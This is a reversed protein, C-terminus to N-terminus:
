EFHCYILNGFVRARLAKKGRFLFFCSFEVPQKNEERSEGRHFSTFPPFIESSKQSKSSAEVRNDDFVSFRMQQAILYKRIEAFVESKNVNKREKQQCIAIKVRSSMCRRRVLTELCCDCSESQPRFPFHLRISNHLTKGHSLIRERKLPFKAAAFELSRRFTATKAASVSTIPTPRSIAANVLYNEECVM